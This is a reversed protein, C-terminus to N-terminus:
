TQPGRRSTVVGFRAGFTALVDVAIAAALASVPLGKYLDRRAGRHREMYVFADVNSEVQHGVQLAIADTAATLVDGEPDVAVLGLVAAAVRAHANLVPVDLEAADKSLLPHGDINYVPM